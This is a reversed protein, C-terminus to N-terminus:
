PKPAPRPKGAQAALLEKVVAMDIRCAGNSDRKYPKGGKPNLDGAQHPPLWKYGYRALCEAEAKRADTAAATPPTAAQGAILTPVAAFAGRVVAVEFAVALLAVLGISVIASKSTKSM